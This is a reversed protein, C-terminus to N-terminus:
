ARAKRQMSTAMLQLRGHKGSDFEEVEGVPRCHDGAAGFPQAQRHSLRKSRRAGVHHEDAAVAVFCRGGGLRDRAIITVFGDAEFRIDGIWRVDLRHSGGSDLLEALTLPHVGSESLNWAVQNEWISQFRELAFPEIGGLDEIDEQTISGLTPMPFFSIKEYRNGKDDFTFNSVRHYEGTVQGGMGVSQFLADRKFSYSNLARRFEAEKATFTSIIRATDVSAPPGNTGTQAPTQASTSLATVAMLALLAFTTAIRM